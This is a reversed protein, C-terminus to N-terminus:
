QTYKRNTTANQKKEYITLPGTSFALLHGFMNYITNTQALDGGSLNRLDACIATHIEIFVGQIAASRLGRPSFTETLM